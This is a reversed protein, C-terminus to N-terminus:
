SHWRKRACNRCWRASLIAARMSSLVDEPAVLLAPPARRGIRQMAALVEVTVRERAILSLRLASEQATLTELRSEAEAMRDEAARVKARSM